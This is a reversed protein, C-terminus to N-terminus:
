ESGDHSCDDTPQTSAIYWKTKNQNANTNSIYEEPIILIMYQSCIYKIVSAIM